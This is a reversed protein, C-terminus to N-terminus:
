FIEKKISKTSLLYIYPTANMEAKFTGTIALKNPGGCLCLELSSCLVRVMCSEDCVPPHSFSYVDTIGNLTQRSHDPCSVFRGPSALTPETSFKVM